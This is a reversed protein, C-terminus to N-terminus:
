RSRGRRRRQVPSTVQTDRARRHGHWGPHRYRRAGRPRATKRRALDRACDLRSQRPLFQKYPNLWGLLLLAPGSPRLSPHLSKRSPGKAWFGFWGQSRVLVGLRQHRDTSVKCRRFRAIRAIRAASQAPTSEGSHLLAGNSTIVTPESCPRLCGIGFPRPLGM